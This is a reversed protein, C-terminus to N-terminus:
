VVTEAQPIEKILRDVFKRLNPYSRPEFTVRSLDAKSWSTDMDPCQTRDLLYVNRRAIQERKSLVQDAAQDEHTTGNIRIMDFVHERVEALILRRAEPSNVGEHVMFPENRVMGPTHQTTYVFVSSATRFCACYEPRIAMRAYLHSWVSVIVDEITDKKFISEYAAEGMTMVDYYRGWARGYEAGGLDGVHNHTKMFTDLADARANFDSSWEVRRNTSQGLQYKTLIAFIPPPDTTTRFKCTKRHREARSRLPFSKRCGHCVWAWFTDHEKPIPAFRTGNEMTVRYQIDNKTPLNRRIHDALSALGEHYRPTPGLFTDCATMYEVAQGNSTVPLATNLWTDRMRTLAEGGDLEHLFDPDPHPHPPNMYAYCFTKKLVWVAINGITNENLPHAIVEVGMSPDSDRYVIQLIHNGNKIFNKYKTVALDKHLFANFFITAARVPPSRILEAVQERTILNEDWMAKQWETCAVGVLADDNWPAQTKTISSVFTEKDNLDGFNEPLTYFAPIREIQEQKAGCKIHRGIKAPDIFTASCKPCRFLEIAPM